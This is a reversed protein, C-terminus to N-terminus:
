FVLIAGVPSILSYLAWVLLGGVLGCVTSTSFSGGATFCNALYEESAWQFATLSTHVILGICVVIIFILAGAKRNKVLRIDFFSTFSLYFFALFVPYAFYGFLGLLVETVGTGVTGFILNGTILMLFALASFLACVASLSEKTVVNANNKDKKNKKEKEENENSANM